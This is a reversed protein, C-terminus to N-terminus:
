TAIVLYARSHRTYATAQGTAPLYAASPPDLDFPFLRLPGLSRCEVGCRMRREEEGREDRTETTRAEDEEWREEGRGDRGIGVATM